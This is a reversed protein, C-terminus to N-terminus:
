RMEWVQLYQQPQSKCFFPTLNLVLRSVRAFLPTPSLGPRPHELDLPMYASCSHNLSLTEQVGQGVSGMDASFPIFSGVGHERSCQLM